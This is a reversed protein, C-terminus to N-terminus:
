TERKAHAPGRTWKGGGLPEATSNSGRSVSSSQATYRGSRDFGPRAMWRVEAVTGNGDCPITSYGGISNLLTFGPLIDSIMTSLCYGLYCLLSRFQPFRGIFFLGHSNLVSFGFSCKVQRGYFYFFGQWLSNFDLFALKKFDLGCATSICAASICIVTLCTHM